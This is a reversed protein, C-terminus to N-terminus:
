HAVSRPFSQCPEGLKLLPFINLNMMMLNKLDVPQLGEYDKLFQEGTAEFQVKGSIESCIMAWKTGLASVVKERIRPHLPFTWMNNFIDWFSYPTGDYKHCLKIIEMKYRLDNAKHFRHVSISGPNYAPMKRISARGYKWDTEFVSDHSYVIAVHRVNSLTFKEILGNGHVFITDGTRLDM